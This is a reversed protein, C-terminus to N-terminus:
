GIGEEIALPRLYSEDFSMFMLRRAGKRRGQGPAPRIKMTLHPDIMRAIAEHRGNWGDRGFLHMAIRTWKERLTIIRSGIKAHWGLHRWLMHLDVLVNGGYASGMSKGCALCVAHDIEITSGGRRLPVIKVDAQMVFQPEHRCRWPRCADPYEPPCLHVETTAAQSRDGTKSACGEARQAPTLDEIRELATM